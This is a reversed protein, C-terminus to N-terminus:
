PEMRNFRPKRPKDNCYRHTALLKQGVVM